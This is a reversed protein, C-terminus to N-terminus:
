VLRGSEIEWERLGPVGGWQAREHGAAKAGRTTACRRGRSAVRGVAVAGGRAAPLRSAALAHRPSPLPHTRAGTCRAAARSSSRGGRGGGPAPARRLSSALAGRRGCTSAARRSGGSWGWGSSRMSGLNVNAESRETGFSVPAPHHFDPPAALRTSRPCVPPALACPHLFVHGM